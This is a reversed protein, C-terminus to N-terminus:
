RNVVIEIATDRDMPRQWTKGRKCRNLPTRSIQKVREGIWNEKAKQM